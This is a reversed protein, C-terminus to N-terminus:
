VAEPGATVDRVHEDEAKFTFFILGAHTEPSETHKWLSDAYHCCLRTLSAHQGSVHHRYVGTVPLVFYTLSCVPSEKLDAHPPRGLWKLSVM